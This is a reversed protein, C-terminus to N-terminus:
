PKISPSAKTSAFLSSVLHNLILYNFNRRTDSVGVDAHKWTSDLLSFYFTFIICRLAVPPQLNVVEIVLSPRLLTSALETAEEQAPLVVLGDPGLSTTDHEVLYAM